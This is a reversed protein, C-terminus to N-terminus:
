FNGLRLLGDAPNRSHLYGGKILTGGKYLPLGPFDALIKGIGSDQTYRGIEFGQRFPNDM